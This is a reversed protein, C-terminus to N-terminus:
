AQLPLHKELLRKLEKKEEESQIARKPIVIAHYSNTYLYYSEPTEAFSVIAEWNYRSEAVTDKDIIGTESLIVEAEDLVHQNEKKS